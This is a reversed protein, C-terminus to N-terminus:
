CSYSFQVTGGVLVSYVNNELVSPVSVLVVDQTMFSASLYLLYLWIFYAKHDNSPSVLFLYCYPFFDGFFKWMVCRGELYDM